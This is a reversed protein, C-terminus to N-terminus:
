KSSIIEFVHFVYFVICLYNLCVFSFICFHFMEFRLGSPPWIISFCLFCQQFHNVFKIFLARWMPCAKGEYRTYVVAFAALPSQSKDQRRLTAITTLAIMQITVPEALSLESAMKLVFQSMEICKQTM